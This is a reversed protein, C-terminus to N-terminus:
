WMGTNKMLAAIYTTKGGPAASYCTYNGDFTLIIHSKFKSHFQKPCEYKRIVTLNWGQKIVLYCVAVLM